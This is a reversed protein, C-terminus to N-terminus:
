DPQFHVHLPFSYALFPLLILRENKRISRNKSMCQVNSKAVPILYRLLRLIMPVQLRLEVLIVQLADHIM